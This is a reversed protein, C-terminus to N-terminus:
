ATILLDAAVLAPIGKLIAFAVSGAGGFGDADYYLVGTSTNYVIRDSADHAQTADAAAHFAADALAGVAGVAGFVTRSLVIKDGEGHNFDAISDRNTRADLATDFVFRDAGAGGTLADKGSGGFLRDDGGGGILIDRGGLGSLTNAAANGIIRNALASGTGNIATSGVLQLNEVYALASLDFSLATRVTDTGGADTTDGPATTVAEFVKDDTSDVLYIDNGTGGAMIDAGKGGDLWDNGAGGNLTDVGAGGKLTDNGDNGSITDTGSDGQLLNDAVGGSITDNGAGGRMSPLFPLDLIDDRITGLSTDALVALDLDGIAYPYGRYYVVGNMLGLLPDNSDGPYANSNGYHSYNNDTLPMAGGTLARVNPGDFMVAGGDIKLRYDYATKFGAPFSNQAEDYYGTFGLAHGIEHLMVALGDTRDSPTEGRTAPTPDLFLENLLYDPAVRISIDPETGAKANGQLKYAPGGDAIWFGDMKPLTTGNLWGGDARGSPVDTTIEIRITLAANGALAKGWLAVAQAAVAQLADVKAQDVAATNVMQFTPTIAM